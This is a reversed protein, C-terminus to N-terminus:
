CAQPYVLVFNWNGYKRDPLYDPSHVNLDAVGAATAMPVVVPETLDGTIRVLASTFHMDTQDLVTVARYRLPLHM